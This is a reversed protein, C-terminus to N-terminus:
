GGGPSVQEELPGSGTSGPGPKATAPEKRALRFSLSCILLNLIVARFGTTAKFGVSWQWGAGFRGWLQSASRWRFMVELRGVHLRKVIERKEELRNLRMVALWVREEDTVTQEM